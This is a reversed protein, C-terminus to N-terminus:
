RRRNVKQRKGFSPASGTKHWAFVLLSLVILIGGVWLVTTGNDAWWNQVAVIPGSITIVSTAVDEGNPNSAKLTVTYVGDKAFTHIPSTETSTTGDGFDWLVSEANSGAFVFQITKGSFASTVSDFIEGASAKLMSGTVVTSDVAYYFMAATPVSTWVIVPELHVTVTKSVSQAENTSTAALTAKITFTVDSIATTSGPPALTVKAGSVTAWSPQGSLSISAASVSKVLTYTYSSGAVVFTGDIGGDTLTLVPTVIVKVTMNVAQTPGETTTAKITFTDNTASSLKSAVTVTSGSFKLGDKTTTTFNYALNATPQTLHVDGGVTYWVTPMSISFVPYVIITITQTATQGGPSTATIVATYTTKTSVSPATGSLTTGSVTLWSANGSTKAFTTNEINSSMSYTFVGGSVAEISAPVSVNLTSEATTVTLTWTYFLTVNQPSTNFSQCQMTYTGASLTTPVTVTVKSNSYSASLTGNLSSAVTSSSTKIFCGTFTSGSPMPFDVVFTQGQSASLTGKDVASAADADDSVMVATAAGCVAFVSLLAVIVKVNFNM